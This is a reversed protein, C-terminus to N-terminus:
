GRASFEGAAEVLDVRAYGAQLLREVLVPRAYREGITLVFTHARLEEPSLMGQMWSQPTTILVQCQGEQLAALAEFRQAVVETNPSFGDYPVTDWPPFLRAGLAGGFVRLDDLLEEARQLTETVVVLPPQPSTGDTRPWLREVLSGLLWAKAGGRVGGIRLPLRAAVRETAAEFLDSLVPLDPASAKPPKRAAM